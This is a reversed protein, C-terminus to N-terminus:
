GLTQLVESNILKPDPIDLSEKPEVDSEINPPGPTDGRLRTDPDILESIWVYSTKLIPSSNNNSQEEVVAIQHTIPPSKIERRDPKLGIQDYDTAVGPVAIRDLLENLSSLDAPDM